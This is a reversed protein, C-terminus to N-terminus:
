AAIKLKSSNWDLEWFNEFTNMGWRENEFLPPFAERLLPNPTWGRRRGTPQSQDASFFLKRQISPSSTIIINFTKSVRPANVLLDRMPLQLLIADVLEPKSLVTEMSAAM